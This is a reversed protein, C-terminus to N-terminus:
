FCAGREDRSLPHPTVHNRSVSLEEDQDLVCAISAHFLPPLPATLVDERRVRWQQPATTAADEGVLVFRKVWCFGLFICVSLDNTNM